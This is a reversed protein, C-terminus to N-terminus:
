HDQGSTARASHNWTRLHHGGQGTDRQELRARFPVQADDGSMEVDDM